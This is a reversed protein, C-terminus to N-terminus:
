AAYEFHMPDPTSFGRGWRFRFAEFLAVVRPDMSGTTNQGNEFVNLDIAVGLSHESMRRAATASGPVKQGRFCGMGQTEFVLDNWGLDSLAQFAAEFAPRTLALGTFSKVPTTTSRVPFGVALELGRASVSGMLHLPELLQPACDTLPTRSTGADFAAVRQTWAAQVQARQASTNIAPPITFPQPYFPAGPLRGPAPERGTELRWMRGAAGGRWANFRALFAPMDQTDDLFGGRMVLRRAQDGIAPFATPFGAVFSPASPLWFDVGAARAVDTRLSRMLLWGLNELAFAEREDDTRRALQRFHGPIALLLRMALVAQRAVPVTPGKDHLAQALHADDGHSHPPADLQAPTYRLRALLETLATAGFAAAIPRLAALGAGAYAAVTAATAGAAALARSSAADPNTTPEPWQTAAAVAVPVPPTQFLSPDTSPAYIRNTPVRYVDEAIEGDAQVEDPAEASPASGGPRVAPRTLWDDNAVCAPRVTAAPPASTGPATAAIDDLLLPAYRAPIDTHGVSTLQVQYRSSVAAAAAAPLAALAKDLAQKTRRAAIETTVLHWQGDDRRYSWAWSGCATYFVRLGSVAVLPSAIRATAWRIIPGEGGYMSDFCVVEDPNLPNTPHGLLTSLGAGGGSHAMVTLRGRALKSGGALGLQGALFALGADILDNVASANALKDFLWAKGGTHRGLPVLALTPQGRRRTVTGAADVLDVGALRAKETLFSTTPVTPAGYGHLHVVVAVSPNSASTTAPDCNWRAEVNDGDGGLVAHRFTGRGLAPIAEAWEAGEVDLAPEPAPEDPPPELPVEADRLRGRAVPLAPRVFVQPARAEALVARRRRRAPVGMLDAYFLDAERLMRSRAV